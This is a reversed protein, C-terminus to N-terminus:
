NKILSPHEQISHGFRDNENLRAQRAQNAQSATPRRVERARATELVIAAMALLTLLVRNM